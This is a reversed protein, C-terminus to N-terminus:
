DAQPNDGSYTEGSFDVHFAKKCEMDVFCGSHHGLEEAFAVLLM